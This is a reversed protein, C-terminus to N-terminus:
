EDRLEEVLVTDADKHRMSVATSKIRYEIPDGLPAKRVVRVEAGPVFGMDLMRRQHKGGGRIEVVRVLSHVPLEGLPVPLAPAPFVSVHRAAAAAIPVVRKDLRLWLLDAEKELVELDMGPKLGMVTLQALLAAPEDDLCIIRLRTGKMGADLLSRGLSSPAQGRPAPIVHGHPDWAPHGLEVDMREVEELTTEHERSDAEAHAEHLAVEERDVLYREWLRHARILERAREKGKETLQMDDRNTKEVWGSAVLAEMVQQILVVPLGLSHAFEDSNWTGQAEELTYLAKLADETEMSRHALAHISSQAAAVRRGQRLLTRLWLAALLVSVALFFWDLFSSM